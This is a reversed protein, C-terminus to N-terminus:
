ATRSTGPAPSAHAIRHHQRTAPHITIDLDDPNDTIDLFVSGGQRLARLSIRGGAISLDKITIDSISAPLVPTIDIRRSFPQATIGLWTQLLLFIAGASWAQPRSADPQRALVGGIERAVGCYVEPWRRYEFYYSADILADFVMHTERVFGYKKLGAAIIANEFPWVSGNHYSFPNYAKETNAMTRIGWASLMPDSVLVAAVDDAYEEEIL